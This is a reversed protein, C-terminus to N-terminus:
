QLITILGTEEIEIIGQITGNSSTLTLEVNGSQDTKGSLRQFLIDTAPSSTISIRNHLLTEENGAAAETYTTGVFLVVRNSELRVGYSDDDKSVLTNSRAENLVASVQETTSSLIQRNRFEMLPGITISAILIGIMIVIVVEILSVGKSHHGTNLVFHLKKNHIM